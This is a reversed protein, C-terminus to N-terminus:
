LALRSQWVASLACHSLTLLVFRDNYYTLQRCLLSLSQHVVGSVKNEEKSVDLQTRFLPLVAGSVGAARFSKGLDVTRSVKSNSRLFAHECAANCSDGLCQSDHLGFVASSGSPVLGLKWWAWACGEGSQASSSRRGDLVLSHVMHHFRDVHQAPRPWSRSRGLPCRLRISRCGDWCMM